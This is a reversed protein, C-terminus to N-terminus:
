GVLIECYVAMEYGLVGFYGYNIWIKWSKFKIKVEFDELEGCVGNM